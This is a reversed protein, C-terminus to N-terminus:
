QYHKLEESVDGGLYSLKGILYVFLFALLM